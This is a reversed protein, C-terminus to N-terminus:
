STTTNAITSKNKWIRWNEKVKNVPIVYILTAYPGMTYTVFSAINLAQQGLRNVTLVCPSDPHKGIAECAFYRSFGEHNKSINRLGITSFILSLASAFAFYFVFVLLKSEATLNSSGQMIINYFNIMYSLQLASMLLLNHVQSLLHKRVRLVKWFTLLNFTSGTPLIICLPLIFSYFLTDPNRPFCYSLFSPFSSIIFGGTGLVAGIPIISVTLSFVVISILFFKIYGQTKISKANVPFWVNWFINIALFLWWYCYLTFIYINIVGANYLLTIADEHCHSYLIYYWFLLLISNLKSSHGSPQLILM